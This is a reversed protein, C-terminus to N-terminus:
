QARRVAIDRPLNLCPLVLVSPVVTRRLSYGDVGAYLTGTSLVAEWV